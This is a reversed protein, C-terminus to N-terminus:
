TTVSGPEPPWALHVLILSDAEAVAEWPHGPAVVAVEAEAIEATEKGIRVVVRGHLVQLAVSGRQDAERLTAGSRLAVLTLRFWDVKALTRANRDGEAYEREDRLRAAEDSLDFRLLPASMSRPEREEVGRTTGVESSQKTM